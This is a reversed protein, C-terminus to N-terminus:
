EEAAEWLDTSEFEVIDGQIELLGKMSGRLSKQETSFPVVRAIPAGKKTIVYETGKRATEDIMRLAKAKFESIGVAKVASKKRSM